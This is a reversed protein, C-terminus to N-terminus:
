DRAFKFPAEHQEDFEEMVEIIYSTLIKNHKEHFDEAEKLPEDEELCNELEPHKNFVEQQYLQFMALLTSIHAIVARKIHKDELIQRTTAPNYIDAAIWADHIGSNEISSGIAQLACLVTHFEGIRFIYKDVDVSFVVLYFIKRCQQLGKYCDLSILKGSKKWIEGFRAVNCFVFGMMCPDKKPSSCSIGLFMLSVVALTLISKM